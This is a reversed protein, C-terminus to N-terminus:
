SKLFLCVFLCCVCKKEVGFSWTVLRDGVNPVGGIDDYRGEFLLEASGSVFQGTQYGSTGPFFLPLLRSSDWPPVTPNCYTPKSTIYVGQNLLCFPLFFSYIMGIKTEKKLTKKKVINFQQFTM